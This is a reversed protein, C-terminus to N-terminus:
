TEEICVPYPFEAVAAEASDMILHQHAAATDAGHSLTFTEAAASMYPMLAAAALQRLSRSAGIKKRRPQPVIVLTM